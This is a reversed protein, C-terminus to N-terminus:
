EPDLTVARRYHTISRDRHGMAALLGAYNFHVVASDPAIRLAVEFHARAGALDGQKQLLIALNNEPDLYDAELSMARRYSAIALADRGQDQYVKGLNNAAQANAPQIRLAERYHIEAEDLRVESQLQHALNYHALFADPNKALTDRWLVEASRYSSSLGASTWGFALMVFTALALPLARPVNASRRLRSGLGGIVLALIAPMALYQYHDAVFSYRMYYIDIFGLVPSLMLIYYLLAVLAPRGWGSRWWWSAAVVAFVAVLPIWTIPTSADIEWRPYVFSLGVPLVIKSLYFCLVWGAGALRTVFDDDRVVFDDAVLVQTSLELLGTMGTILFFPISLGVDRASITNRQWWAMLLLIAPFPAAAGKSLMAALFCVLSVFYLAAKREAEFRLYFLWAILFFLLSLITKRQAIWAVSEVNVPHIAFVFAIFWPFPVRLARLLAWMAIACLAHLLLNVVRYGLPDFEWIQYELWYTTFTMPWYNIKQPPTLWVKYLGDDEFVPNDLLHTDDDWIFSGGLSPAYIAFCAIVIALSGILWRAPESSAAVDSRQSM